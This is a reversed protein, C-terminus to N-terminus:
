RITEGAAKELAAMEANWDFLARHYDGLISNYTRRSDLLDLLSIEGERYSVEAIRLSEEVQGLLADDFVSLTAEALRIRRVSARIEKALDLRLGDLERESARSLLSAEAAEKSRFNWLPVALSVAVGRNVGDLGSDTFGTLTLDPFRRGKVLGIRSRSQELREIGARVLPHAALAREVLEEEDIRVPIYALTGSVSYDPALANDLLANLSERATEMEARLATTEKEARLVEVRLKIADLPKAEGLEARKRVIAEMERASAATKELLREQEQLLLLAYYRVKIESVVEMVRYTQAHSSEEWASREVGIRHRRKFPSEVPQSLSFGHTDRGADRDHFEARGFQLGFEPNFLRRSARYASERADVELAGAAVRPNRALGMAVLEDLTYSMTQSPGAFSALGLAFVAALAAPRLLRQRTGTM